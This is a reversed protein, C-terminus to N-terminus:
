YSSVPIVSSATLDSCPLRVTEIASTVACFLRPLLVIHAYSPEVTPNSPHLGSDLAEPARVKSMEGRLTFVCHVPGLGTSSAPLVSQCLNTPSGVSGRHHNYTQGMRTLINNVETTNLRM